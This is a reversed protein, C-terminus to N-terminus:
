GGVWREIGGLVVVSEGKVRVRGDVVEKEERGCVKNGRGGEGMVLRWENM